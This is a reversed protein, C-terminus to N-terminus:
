RSLSKFSYVNSFHFILQQVIELNTANALHVNAADFMDIKSSARDCNLNNFVHFRKLVFITIIFKLIILFFHKVELTANNYISSTLM